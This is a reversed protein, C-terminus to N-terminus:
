RSARLWLSSDFREACATGGTERGDQRGTSVCGAEPFTRQDDVDARGRRAHGDGWPCRPWTSATGSCLSTYCPCGCLNWICRSCMRWPNRGRHRPPSGGALRVQGDRRRGRRGRRGAKWGPHAALADRRHVLASLGRGRLVLHLRGRRVELTYPPGHHRLLRRLAQPQGRDVRLGPLPAPAGGRVRGVLCSSTWRPIPSCPWSTRPGAKPRDPLTTTWTGSARRSSSATVM